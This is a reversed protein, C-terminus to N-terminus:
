PHMVVGASRAPEWSSFFAEARRGKCGMGPNGAGHFIFMNGISVFTFGCLTYIITYVYIHTYTHICIYIYLYIIIIITIRIIIIIKIIYVTYRYLMNGNVYYSSLLMPCKKSGTWYMGGPSKKPWIWIMFSDHVRQYNLMAISFSWLFLSSEMLFPSKGYNSDTIFVM